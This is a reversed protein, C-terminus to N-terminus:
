VDVDEEFPNAELLRRYNEYPEVHVTDGVGTLVLSTQMRPALYECRELPTATIVQLGFAHFVELTTAIREQDMKSFAEDFVVLRPTSVGSRSRELYLQLFSAAIAIYFPTQTEGGSTQGMIRSLRSVQGSGHTVEIDYNLYTRYDTLSEKWEKEANDQPTMTLIEYFQEFTERREAFYQSEKLAKTGLSGSNMVLEYFERIEAAPYWRFRYSEGRFSLGKLGRNLRELSAKASLIRERLRHLIHERLEEEAKRGQVEIEAKFQPLESSLLRQLEREYREEQLEGVLASFDYKVNYSTCASVLREKANSLKTEFGKASIHANRSITEVSDLTLSEDESKRSVAKKAKEYAALDERQLAEVESKSLEHEVRAAKLEQSSWKERSFSEALGKLVAEHSEKAASLKDAVTEVRKLLEEFDSSDLNELEQRAAMRDEEIASLARLDEGKAMLHSLDQTAALLGQQKQSEDFDALVGRGRAEAERLQEDLDARQSELARAGCRWPRVHAVNLGRTSWEAYLLCDRTISRRHRELDEAADVCITSGLVHHLYALLGPDDCQVFQALSGEMAPRSESRVRDLHLVAVDSLGHERRLVRLFRQAEGYASPDSLVLTFRRRGLVAEIADQWSEDTVEVHECLFAVKQKLKSALLDRAKVVQSPFNQERSTVIKRLEDQLEAVKALRRKLEDELRLHKKQWEEAEERAKSLLVRLSPFDVEGSSLEKAEKALNPSVLPVLRQVRERIGSQMSGCFEQERELAELNERLRQLRRAVDNQELSVRLDVLQSELNEILSKAHQKKKNQDAQEHQCKEISAELEDVKMGRATALAMTALDRQDKALQSLQLAQSRFEQIHELSQIQEEAREAQKKLDGLRQTVTNLDVLELPAADLLWQEVFLRIDRIPQFTLARVFVDLFREPLNGLSKLMKAQYDRASDFCEAKVAKKSASLRKVFAKLEKRTLVRDRNCVDELDFDGRVIFFSREPPRRSTAEVCVGLTLRNEKDEALGNGASSDVAAAGERKQSFSLGLYAVTDGERLYRDEGIKGRVYSDLNRSSREQASSNFRVKQLDAVMLFQIADLITSKGSGNHGTLFLSGRTKLHHHELRHWNHLFISTLELM